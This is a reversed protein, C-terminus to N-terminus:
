RTGSSTFEVDSAVGAADFTVVLRKRFIKLNFVSGSTESYVYAAAEGTTAKIMPYIYYGSPKGLLQTLEARTTKGKVVDKVKGEDFDTHDEAWSSVFEHGVLTDDYFYLSIARAPTVGPHRPQGGTSAYAYSAIKLTKENKLVTGERWPAGMSARLQAFTTQGNVLSSADPRVFDTGACGSLMLAAAALAWQKFTKHM